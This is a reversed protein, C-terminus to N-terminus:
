NEPIPLLSATAPQEPARLVGFANNRRQKLGLIYKSTTTKATKTPSKPSQPLRPPTRKDTTSVNPQSPIKDHPKPSVHTHTHTHHPISATLRSPKTPSQAGCASAPLSSPSQQHREKTSGEGTGTGTGTGKRKRKGGVKTRGRKQHWTPTNASVGRTPFVCARKGGLPHNTKSRKHRLPSIRDNTRQCEPTHTSGFM